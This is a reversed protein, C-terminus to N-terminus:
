GADAAEEDSPWANSEVLSRAKAAEKADPFTKVLEDLAQNAKAEEGLKVYAHVIELLLSPELAVDQYKRKMRELRGVYGRLKGLRKYFDAVYREHAMLRSRADKLHRRAEEANEHEPFRSLYVSFAQATDRVASQDKEHAPPLAFWDGPILRAQAKGVRFLAYAVKPHTPHLRAFNQYGDISELWRERAYQCDAIRLDALVAFKSYPYKRRVHDYVRQALIYEEQELAKEALAWNQAANPRPTFSPLSEGRSLGISGDAPAPEEGGGGNTSQGSGACGGAMVLLSLAFLTQSAKTVKLSPVSSTM